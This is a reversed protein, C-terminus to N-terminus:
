EGDHERVWMQYEFDDRGDLLQKHFARAQSRKDYWRTFAWMAFAMAVIGLV